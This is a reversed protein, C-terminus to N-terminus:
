RQCRKKCKDLKEDYSGTCKRYAQALKNYCAQHGKMGTPCKKNLNHNPNVEDCDKWATRFGYDEECDNMCIRVQNEHTESVDDEEEPSVGMESVDYDEPDVAERSSKCGTMNILFLMLIICLVYPFTKIMSYRSHFANTANQPTNM